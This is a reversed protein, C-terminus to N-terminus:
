DHDSHRGKTPRSALPKRSACLPELQFASTAMAAPMNAAIIHSPAANWTGAYVPGREFPVGPASELRIKPIIMAPTTHEIRDIDLTRLSALPRKRSAPFVRKTVANSIPGTGPLPLSLGGRLSAARCQVHREQLRLNLTGLGLSRAGNLKPRSRDALAQVPASPSVTQRSTCRGGPWPSHRPDRM